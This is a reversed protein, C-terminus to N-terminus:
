KGTGELKAADLKAQVALVEKNLFARYAEPHAEHKKPIPSILREKMGALYKHLSVLKEKSLSM